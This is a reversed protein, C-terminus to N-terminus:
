PVCLGMQEEFFSVWNDERVKPDATLVKKSKSKYSYKSPARTKERGKKYAEWFTSGGQAMLVVRETEADTDKAWAEEESLGKKMLLRVRSETYGKSRTVYESIDQVRVKNAREFTKGAEKM